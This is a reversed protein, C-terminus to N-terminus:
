PNVNAPAAFFGKRRRDLFEVVDLVEVEPERERRAAAESLNIECFPCASLLTRAGALAAEEMRQTAARAALEPFQSKVGGGAGCCFANHGHRRMEVLEVGTVARVLERPAEYVGAHRGLHCPDHYTVLEREGAASGGWSAKFERLYETAHLVEVEFPPEGGLSGVLRPYDLKLTRYCGACTTVVRRVGLEGFLTANTNAVGRAIELDGLRLAVSGCCAESPLVSLSAGASAVLRGLAKLTAPRRLPTTCGAFVAVDSEGPGVLGDLGVLRDLANRKEGTPAGYPNGKAPDTLDALVRDHRELSLGAARLDLRLAEWTAVHDIWRSVFLNVHPDHSQHCADHCAGCTTCQFAWEALERSASIKGELLGQAVRMRGRAFATEFPSDGAEKAPCAPYKGVPTRTAYGCDGCGICSYVDDWRQRLSSWPDPESKGRGAGDDGSM